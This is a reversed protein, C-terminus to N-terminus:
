KYEGMAVRGEFLSYTFFAYYDPSDLIFSSSEPDALRRYEERDAQAMKSQMEGWLMGFLSILARRIADDLPAHVTGVVTRATPETLGADRFWGLARQFIEEPKLGKALFNMASATANLRAELLPFGPLLMQSTYGLITVLGAPRVVRALERLGSQPEGVTRHGVCDVSWAWDFTDDDFPLENVNGQRFSVQGSHDSREALGKAHVVLEASLDLGTVHGGPGVAEALLLTHDGTGCGADLGRSGGPLGLARIAQRIVPDRLPNSLVLKELYTEMGTVKGEGSEPARRSDIAAQKRNRQVGNM